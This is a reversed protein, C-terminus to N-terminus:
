KTNDIAQIMCLERKDPRKQNWEYTILYKENEELLESVLMPCKLTILNESSGINIEITDQEKSISVVTATTITTITKSDNYIYMGQLVCLLFLIISFMKSSQKRISYLFWGITFITLVLPIFSAIEHVGYNVLTYFGYKAMENQFIYFGWLCLGCLLFIIRKYNKTGM